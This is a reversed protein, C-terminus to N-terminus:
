DKKSWVHQPITYKVMILNHGKYNIGSKGSKRLMKGLNSHDSGPSIANNCEIISNYIRTVGKNYGKVRKSNGICLPNQWFSFYRGVMSSIVSAAVYFNKNINRTINYYDLGMPKAASTPSKYIDFLIKSNKEFVYIVDAPIEEPTLGNPLNGDGLPQRDYPSLRPIGKRMEKFPNFISILKNDLNPSRIYHGELNIYRNFDRRDVGLLEAGKSVSSIPEDTVLSGDSYYLFLNLNAGCGTLVSEDDMWNSWTFTVPGKGNLGQVDTNFFSILAQERVYLEYQTFSRLIFRIKNDAALNPNNLMFATEHNVQTYLIHWNFQELGGLDRARNYLPRMLDKYDSFHNLLRTYFRTSSGIYLQGTQPDIFAYIGSDPYQKAVLAGNKLSHTNLSGSTTDPHLILKSLGTDGKLPELCKECNEQIYLKAASNDSLSDFMRILAEQAKTIQPTISWPISGDISSVIIFKSM